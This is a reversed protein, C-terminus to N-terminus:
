GKASAIIADAVAPDKLLAKVHGEDSLLESPSAGAKVQKYVKYLKSGAAWIAWLLPVIVTALETGVKISAADWGIAGFVGKVLMTVDSGTALGYLGAAVFGLVLILSKWGDLFKMIGGEKRSAGAKEKIWRLAFWQVMKDTLGMASRKEILEAYLVALALVVGSSAIAGGGSWMHKGGDYLHVSLVALFQVVFLRRKKTPLWRGWVVESLTGGTRKIASPLEIALFAGLWILWLWPRRQLTM